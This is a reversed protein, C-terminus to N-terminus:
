LLWQLTISTSFDATTEALTIDSVSLFNVVISKKKKYQCTQPANSALGNCMVYGFPPPPPLTYKISSM